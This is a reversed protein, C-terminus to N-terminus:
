SRKKKEKKPKTSFKRFGADVIREIATLSGPTGNSTQANVRWILFNSRDNLDIVFSGQRYDRSWTRDSSNPSGGMPGLNQVDMRELSGIIYSVTLDALTDVRTLGKETLELSIAAHVWEHLQEDPVERQDKPTIIEGEGMMFTRYKSLDRNKDYEATVDQAYTSGSSAVLLFLLVFKRMLCLYRFHVLVDCNYRAGPVANTM